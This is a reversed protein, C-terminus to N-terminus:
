KKSAYYRRLAFVDIALFILLMGTVLLGPGLRLYSSNAWLLIISIVGLILRAYNIAPQSVKRILYTFGFFLLTLPILLLFYYYNM